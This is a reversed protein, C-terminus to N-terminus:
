QMTQNSNFLYDQLTQNSFIQSDQRKIQPITLVKQQLGNKNKLSKKIIKREILCNQSAMTDENNKNKNILLSQQLQNNKNLNISPQHQHSVNKKTFNISSVQLTNQNQLQLLTSNQTSQVGSILLQDFQKKDISLKRVSKRIHDNNKNLLISKNSTKNKISLYISDNLTTNQQNVQTKNVFTDKSNQINNRSIYSQRLNTFTSSLFKQAQQQFDSNSRRLTQNLSQNMSQDVGRQQQLRQYAQQKEKQRKLMQEIDPIQDVVKVANQNLIPFKTKTKALLNTQNGLVKHSQSKKINKGNDLNIGYEKAMQEQVYNFFQKSMKIKQSPSIIIPLKINQNDDQILENEKIVLYSNNINKNGNSQSKSVLHDQSFRSAFIPDKMINLHKSQRITQQNIFDEQKINFQPTTYNDQPLSQQIELHQNQIELSSNVERSFKQVQCNNFLIQPKKTKYASNQSIQNLLNSSFQRQNNYVPIITKDQSSIRPNNQEQSPERSYRLLSSVKSKNTCRSMASTTNTHSTYKNHNNISNKNIRLTALNDKIQDHIDEDQNAKVKKNIHQATHQQNLPKSIQPNLRIQPQNQRELYTLRRESSYQQQSLQTINNDLM